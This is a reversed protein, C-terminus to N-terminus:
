SILEPLAKSGHDVLYRPRGSLDPVTATQINIGM